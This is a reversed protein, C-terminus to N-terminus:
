RFGWHDHLAILVSVITAIVASVLRDYVGRRIDSRQFVVQYYTGAPSAGVNPVLDVVLSGSTGLTVSKSGAAVPKSDSTTFAPWSILVTGSAPTGDARYVTDSVRTTAPGIDAVAVPTWRLGWGALLVSILGCFFRGVPRCRADLM